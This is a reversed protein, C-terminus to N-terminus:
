SAASNIGDGHLCSAWALGFYVNNLCVCLCVIVCVCVRLRVRVCTFLQCTCCHYPLTIKIPAPLHCTSFYSGPTQRTEIVLWTILVRYCIRKEKRLANWIVFKRRPAKYHHFFHFGIIFWSWAAGVGVGRIHCKRSAFSPNQNKTINHLSVEVSYTIEGQM